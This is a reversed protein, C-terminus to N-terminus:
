CWLGEPSIYRRRVYREQIPRPYGDECTEFARGTVQWSPRWGPQFRPRLRYGKTELIGSMDRWWREGPTLVAYKEKPPPVLHTEDLGSQPNHCRIETPISYAHPGARHLDYFTWKSSIVSADMADEWLRVQAEPRPALHPPDPYANNKGFGLKRAARAIFSSLGMSALARPSIFPLHSESCGVISSM